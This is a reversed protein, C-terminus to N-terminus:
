ETIGFLKAIDRIEPVSLLAKHLSKGDTERSDGASSTLLPNGGMKKIIRSVIERRNDESPNIPESPRTDGVRSSEMEAALLRPGKNSACLSTITCNVEPRWQITREDATSLDFEHITTWGLPPMASFAQRGILSHLKLSEM